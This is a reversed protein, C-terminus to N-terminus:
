ITSSSNITSFNNYFFRAWIRWDEVNPYINDTAIPINQSPNSTQLQEVWTKWNEENLPLPINLYNVNNKTFEVWTKFDLFDPLPMM